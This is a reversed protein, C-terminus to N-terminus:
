KKIIFNIKILLLIFYFNFLVHNNKKYLAFKLIKELLIKFFRNYKCIVDLTFNFFSKIIILFFYLILNKM